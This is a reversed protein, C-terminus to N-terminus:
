AGGFVYAFECDTWELHIDRVGKERWKDFTEKHIEPTFYGESRIYGLEPHTGALSVRLPLLPTSFNNIEEEVGRTRNDQEWAYITALRDAIIKRTTVYLYDKM